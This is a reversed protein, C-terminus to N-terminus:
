SLGRGMGKSTQRSAKGSTSRTHVVFGPNAYKQLLRCDEPKGTKIKMADKHNKYGGILYGTAAM